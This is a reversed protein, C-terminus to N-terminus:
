KLREELETEEARAMRRGKEVDVRALLIMGVIFFVILSLVAPRSSDFVAAAAAFVLPGFITAVKEMIGFLGFFEGSKPAPILTSFLSRSLAQSGGQVCAILWALCWFEVVSDLFFGWVAIVSYVILALLLSRKTNMKEAVRSFLVKGLLLALLLCVVELAFIMGIVFGLNSQRLPPLVKVAAITLVTGSSRPDRDGLNVLSLVHEGPTLAQLTVTNEYRLNPRYTNITTPQGDKDQLSQGDIEVNWIGHDPGVSYTITIKQGNFSFDM